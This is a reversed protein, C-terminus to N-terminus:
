KKKLYHNDIDTLTLFFYEAKILSFFFSRLLGNGIFLNKVDLDDIKDTLDSSVYCVQGPYTKTFFKILDYSFKQYFKSESYFVIKIKKDSVNFIKKLQTYNSKIKNIIKLM